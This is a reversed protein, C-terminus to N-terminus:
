KQFSRALQELANWEEPDLQEFLTKQTLDFSRRPRGDATGRQDGNHFCWGAAGGARAAEADRVFDAAKPNWGKTYGRRFPEQYLVPVPHELEQFLRLYSETQAATQRPSDAGRPRHPTIFDIKVSDLYERLEEKTIDPSHSATVLLAPALQRARARLIKLDAMSTFRKDRINRENSLDLSWNRQDKLAGTLTEVARLHEPLKQLRLSGNLGTGRTLTVDVVIGLRDCTEVLTRLYALFPERPNGEEDVAAVDNTFASWNAWVRIWNFHFKRISELDKALTEPSAGLGGYYSLGYLFTPAGNITFRTGQRGLVTSEAAPTSFACFLLALCIQLSPFRLM